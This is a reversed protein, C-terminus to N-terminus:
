GVRLRDPVVDAPSPSGELPEAGAPRQTDALSEKDAPPDGQEVTPDTASDVGAQTLNNAAITHESLTAVLSLAVWVAGLCVLLRMLAVDPSLTGSVQAAWLAPSGLALTGLVVPWSLLSM